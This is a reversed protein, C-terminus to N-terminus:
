SGMGTTAQARSRLMRVFAETGLQRYLSYLRAVKSRDACSTSAPQTTASSPPPTMSAKFDLELRQVLGKEGQTELTAAYSTVMANWEARRADFAAGM